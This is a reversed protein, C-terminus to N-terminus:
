YLSAVNNVARKIDTDFVAAYRKTPATNKHGLAKSVLYIDGEQQYLNTGFTSRLKHPTIHKEPVAVSCYKVILKEIQRVTVRTRRNSIFLANCKADGLLEERKALWLTLYNATKYDFDVYKTVNGKEVVKIRNKNLDIDEINIESLATVRLGNVVPIRFLLMDRYKWDKQKSVSTKNGVGDIITAECKRVEAPTLYVIENESIKPRDILGNAFPNEDIQKTRALYAFFSSLSSYIICQTSEKLEHVEDDDKNFYMIESMYTQITFEDIKKVKDISPYEGFVHLFFRSVNSIYRNKTTHSKINIAYYYRKMYEPMDSLKTQISNELKVKNEIRGQM